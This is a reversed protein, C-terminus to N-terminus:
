NSRHNWRSLSCRCRAASVEPPPQGENCRLQQILRDKEAQSTLLKQLQVELASVLADREKRWSEM